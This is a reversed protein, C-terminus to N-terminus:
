QRKFIFETEFEKETYTFVNKFYLTEFRELGFRILHKGHGSKGIFYKAICKLSNKEENYVLVYNLNKRTFSVAKSIIDTLILLSDFIKLKIESIKKPDADGNKRSIVGNKFEIFYM